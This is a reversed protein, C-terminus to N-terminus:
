KIVALNHRGPRREDISTMSELAWLERRTLKKLAKRVRAPEDPHVGKGIRAEYRALIADIIDDKSWEYPAM